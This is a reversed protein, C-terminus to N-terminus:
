CRFIRLLVNRRRCGGGADIYGKQCCLSFVFGSIFKKLLGLDNLTPVLDYREPQEM